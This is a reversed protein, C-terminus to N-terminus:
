LAYIRKIIVNNLPRDNSDCAENQIKEVIDMGELVAGFVTYKGDLHPTGGVTTYAERQQATYKFEVKEAEEKAKAKTEETIIAMKENDGRKQYEEMKPRAALFVERAKDRRMRSTEGMEMTDLRGSTFVKGTVIYFQTASSERKPNINDGNRAAAIAGYSHILDSRIEAPIKYAPGGGGYVIGPRPNRSNPDGTQVMFDKIVRHFIVGNYKGENVIKEFNAQHKPTEDFIVIKVNGLTTEIEYRKGTQAMAFIGIAIFFILFM